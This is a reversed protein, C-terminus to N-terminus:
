GALFKRSDKALPPYYHIHFYSSEIESNTGKLPAQHIGMNYPFPYGFLRDYAKTISIITNALEEQEYEKLDTLARKHEKPIIMTEYPWTGWWPCLAVFVENQYVIRSKIACEQKAYNKLMHQDNNNVRYLQMNRLEIDAEEPLSSTIWVQVHPHTNSCGAATGKNEFIQMYRYQCDPKNDFISAQEFINGSSIPTLQFPMSAPNIHVAYILTWMKIINMNQSISLSAVTFNHVPSLVLVYCKGTVMEMRLLDSDNNITLNVPKEKFASFDNVFLYTSNYKQNIVKGGARENGPCLDCTSDYSM